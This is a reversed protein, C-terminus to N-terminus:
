RSPLLRIDGGDLRADALARDSEIEERSETTGSELVLADLVDEVADDIIKWDARLSAGAQLRIRFTVFGTLERDDIWFLGQARESEFDHVVLVAGQGEGTDVRTSLFTVGDEIGEGSLCLTDATNDFHVGVVAGFDIGGLRTVNDGENTELVNLGTVGKAVFAGQWGRAM